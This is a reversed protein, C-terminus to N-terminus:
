AARYGALERASARELYAVAHPVTRLVSGPLATSVPEELCARVAQAKRAEPVICLIHRAALLAPITLTIAHTPVDDLTPFRGESVPQRRSRDSLEVVKVRRPDAFDANHPDNFALHGNEGWGLSALDLPHEHLFAEFEAVLADVDAPRSPMVLVRKARVHDLLHQQLFVKTGLRADDLGLYQDVMVINVHSWDVAPAIRLAELYAMQSNGTAVVTTAEGRRDIAERLVTAADGAAARALAGADAYIRVRLDDYTLSQIPEGPDPM